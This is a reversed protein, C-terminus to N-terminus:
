KKLREIIKEAEEKSIEEYESGPDYAAKLYDDNRRFAGYLRNYVYAECGDVIKVVGNYGASGFCGYYKENM